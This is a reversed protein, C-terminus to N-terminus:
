RSWKFVIFNEKNKGLGTLIGEKEAGLYEMWKHATYHTDLSFCQARHVGAEELAPIFEKKIHITLEKAVELWRDTAFMWVDWVGPWMEYGGFAAVPEDNNTCAVAGILTNRVIEKVLSTPDEDWRTAYIEEKDIHRMALAVVRVLPESIPKLKLFHGM